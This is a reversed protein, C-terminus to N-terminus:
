KLLASYWLCSGQWPCTGCVDAVDARSKLRVNVFDVLARANQRHGTTLGLKQLVANDDARVTADATPDKGCNMGRRHQCPACVDDCDATIVLELDPETQFRRILEALNKIFLPNYGQGQFGQFCLLHHGRLLIPTSHSPSFKQLMSWM